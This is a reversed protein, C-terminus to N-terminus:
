YKGINCACKCAKDYDSFFFLYIIDLKPLLTCAPNFKFTTFPKYHYNINSYDLFGTTPKSTYEQLNRNGVDHIKRTPVELM